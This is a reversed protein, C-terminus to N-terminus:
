SNSRKVADIATILDTVVQRTAVDRQRFDLVGTVNVQLTQITVGGASTGSPTDLQEVLREFARTQDPSLVREPRPTRKPLMGAGTAIGGDDYGGARNYAAALSGYRAMAYRMSALINALPDYPSNSTGPFHYARFTPDITQMLGKSPTGRAANSDWNNIALPNGGSEQNMRRLVTQLLSAPQGMMSLAQLVVPAWRQVGAGGGVGVATLMSDLVQKVKAVAGDVARPAPQMAASRWNSAQGPTRNNDGLVGSFMNRVADAGGTFLDGVIGGLAFGPLGHQQIFGQAGGVGGTRAARNAGHIYDAGAARTWEPRMVAEGPSLAAVISDRGPTYGPLIGGTALRPLNFVGAISNWMPKIGNNYVTDVVFRIPQSAMDRLSNLERIAWDKVNIFVRQVQSPLNQIAAM